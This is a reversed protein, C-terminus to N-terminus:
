RGAGTLEAESKTEVSVDKATSHSAKLSPQPLLVPQSM